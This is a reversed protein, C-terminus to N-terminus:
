VLVVPAAQCLLYQFFWVWCCLKGSGASCGIFIDALPPFFFRSSAFLKASDVGPDSVCGVGFTLLGLDVGSVAASTTELQHSSEHAVTQCQFCKASVLCAEPDSM